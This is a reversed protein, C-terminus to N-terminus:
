INAPLIDCRRQVKIEEDLERDHNKEYKRIYEELMQVNSVAENVDKARLISLIIKLHCQSMSALNPDFQFFKSQEQNDAWGDCAAKADFDHRTINDKHKGTWDMLEEVMDDDDSSLNNSM